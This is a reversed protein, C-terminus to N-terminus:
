ITALRQRYLDALPDGPLHQIGISGPLYHHQEHFRRHCWLYLGAPLLRAYGVVVNWLGDIKDTHGCLFLLHGSDSGAAPQFGHLGPIKRDRDAPDYGAIFVTAQYNREASGKRDTGHYAPSPLYLNQLVNSFFGDAGLFLVRTYSIKEFADTKPNNRLLVDQWNSYSELPSAYYWGCQVLFAILMFWAIPSYFLNRLEAKAVQIVM